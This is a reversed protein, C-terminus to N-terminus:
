LSAWNNIFIPSKTCYYNSLKNIIEYQGEYYGIIFCIIMIIILVGFSGIKKLIDIPIKSLFINIKEQM